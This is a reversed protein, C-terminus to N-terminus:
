RLVFEEIRQDKQILGIDARDGNARYSLKDTTVHEVPALQHRSSQEPRQGDGEEVRKEYLVVNGTQSRTRYLSSIGAKGLLHRAWEIKGIFSYGGTFDAPAAHM